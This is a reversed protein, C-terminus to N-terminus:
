KLSLLGIPFRLNVAGGAVSLASDRFKLSNKHSELACEGTLALPSDMDAVPSLITASVNGHIRHGRASSLSSSSRKPLDQVLTRRAQPPPRHPHRQGLLQQQHPRPLPLVAGSFAFAACRAKSRRRPSRFITSFARCIPSVVQAAARKKRFVIVWGPVSVSSTACVCSAASSIKRM